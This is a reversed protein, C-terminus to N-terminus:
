STDVWLDNIAPSGPPSSAVTIHPVGGPITATPNFWLEATPVTGSPDSTSVIVENVTTNLTITGEVDNYVVDVGEGETLSAAVADIVGETDLGPAAATSTITITNGVDSYVIDIGAGERLAAAVADVAEEITIGGGGGGTSGSEHGGTLYWRLLTMPDGGDYFAIVTDGPDLVPLNEAEAPTSLFPRAEVATDGYLAPVVVTAVGTNPDFQRVTAVHLGAATTV